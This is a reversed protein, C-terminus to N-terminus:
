VTGLSIYLTATQGANTNISLQTANGKEIVFPAQGAGVLIGGPVGVQPYVSTPAIDFSCSQPGVNYITVTTPRAPVQVVASVNNTSTLAYTSTQGPTFANAM